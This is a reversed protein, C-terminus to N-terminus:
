FSDSGEDARAAVQSWKITKNTKITNKITSFMKDTRREVLLRTHKVLTIGQTYHITYSKIDITLVAKSNSVNEVCIHYNCDLM